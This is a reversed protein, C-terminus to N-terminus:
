LTLLWLSNDRKNRFLLHREGVDLALDIGDIQTGARMKSPNVLLTTEGSELDVKWITDNWQVVGQYWADPYQGPLITTPTACYVASTKSAFVCKEPLTQLPFAQSSKTGRTYLYTQLGKDSSESYLIRKGDPSMRATLGPIADLMKEFSRSTPSLLYLYGTVGASAKTALTIGGATAWEPLWESFSSEFITTQGKASASATTKSTIGIVGQGSKLLYFM